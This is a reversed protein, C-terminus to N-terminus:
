CDWGFLGGEMAADENGDWPDFDEDEPEDYEDMYEYPDVYAEDSFADLDSYFSDHFPYNSM